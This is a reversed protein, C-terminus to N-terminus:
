PGRLIRQFTHVDIRNFTNFDVQKPKEGSSSIVEWLLNVGIPTFPFSNYHRIDVLPPAITLVWHWRHKKLRNYGYCGYNSIRKIFDSPIFRQSKHKFFSKICYIEFNEARYFIGTLFHANFHWSRSLYLISFLVKSHM